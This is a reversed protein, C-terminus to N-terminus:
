IQAASDPAAPESAVPEPSPTLAQAGRPFFSLYIAGTGVAAVIISIAWGLFPIAVVLTYILLGLLFPLLMWWRSDRQWRRLLLSGVLYAVVIKSLYVTFLIFVAYTV